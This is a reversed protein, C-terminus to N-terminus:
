GRAGPRGGRWGRVAAGVAAPQEVWPRHGAGPVVVVEAQPLAAALADLAWAPRPDEAGHLLLAPVDLRRCRDLVADEDHGDLATRLGRNAEWCIPGTAEAMATAHALAEARDPHALDPLWHLARWEVEEDPSRDRGGLEAERRRQDSSLRRVAEAKAAAHWARGTGVGSLYLLATTREPHALAYRLALTAGFSHGAVVWREHGLHQRVAELDAVYRALTHPGAPDSRGVGRQHWRVVTAEEDLLAALPRLDDALGPGGHSLVLPPGTGTAEFWLRVGDDATARGEM